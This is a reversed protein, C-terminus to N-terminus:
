RMLLAGYNSLELFTCPVLGACSVLALITRKQAPSFRDYIADHADKPVDALLPTEESALADDQTM